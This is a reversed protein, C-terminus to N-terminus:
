LTGAISNPKMYNARVVLVSQKIKKEGNQKMTDADSIELYKYMETEGLTRFKEQNPLEMGDTIHRKWSIAILMIFEEIVFEM